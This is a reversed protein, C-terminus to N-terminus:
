SKDIEKAPIAIEELTKALLIQDSLLTLISQDEISEIQSILEAPLRGVKTELQRLLINKQGELVGEVRGEQWGKQEIKEHWMLEIENLADMIEEGSTLITAKPLYVEIISMLFLRDAENLKSNLVKRLAELKTTAPSGELKM